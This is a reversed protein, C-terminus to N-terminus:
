DRTMYNSCNVEKGAFLYWEDIYVIQTAGPDGAVSGVRINIPRDTMADDILTSSAWGDAWTAQEGSNASLAGNPNVTGEWSIALIEWTNFDMVASSYFGDTGSEVLYGALVDNDAPNRARFVLGDDGEADRIDWLDVDSTLEATVKVKMCLTQDALENFYQGVTQTLLIDEDADDCKMAYSGGDGDTTIDAGDDTFLIQTGASNCGYLVGSTHDGDWSLIATAYYTPCPSAAVVNMRAIVAKHADQVSGGFCLSPLLFILLILKKVQMLGGM